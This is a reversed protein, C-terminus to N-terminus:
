KTRGQFRQGPIIEELEGEQILAKAGFCLVGALKAGGWDGYHTEIEM